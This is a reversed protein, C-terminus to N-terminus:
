EISKSTQGNNPLLAAIREDLEAPKRAQFTAADARRRCADLSSRLSQVLLDDEDEQCRVMLHAALEQVAAYRQLSLLHEARLVLREAHESMAGIEMVIDFFTDYLIRANSYDGERLLLYYASCEQARAM